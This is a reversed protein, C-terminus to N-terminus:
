VVSKRDRQAFAGVTGAAKTRAAELGYEGTTQAARMDGVAKIQAATLGLKGAIDAKALEAELTQTTRAGLGAEVTALNEQKDLAEMQMRATRREQPTGSTMANRLGIREVDADIAARRTQAAATKAADQAAMTDLYTRAEGPAFGGYGTTAPAAASVPAAGAAVGTKGVLGALGPTANVNTFEPVSGADRRFIEGGQAGVGIGTGTYEPVAPTPAVLPAAVAPAVAAALPQPAPTAAPRAIERAGKQAAPTAYQQKLTALSPQSGPALQVPANPDETGRIYPLPINYM